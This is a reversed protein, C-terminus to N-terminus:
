QAVGEVAWGGGRPRRASAPEPQREAAGLEEESIDFNAYVEQVDDHDDLEDLLKLMREAHKGTLTVTNEAGDPDRRQRRRLGEGRAREKVAEFDDPATQVPAHRRGRRHRAREAEIAAEMLTDADVAARDFEIVGTRDFM